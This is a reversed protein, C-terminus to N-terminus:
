MFTFSVSHVIDIPRLRAKVCTLAGAGGTSDLGSSLNGVQVGPHEASRSRESEPYRAFLIDGPVGEM